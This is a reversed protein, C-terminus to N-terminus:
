VVKDFPIGAQCEGIYLNDWCTSNQDKGFTIKCSHRNDSWHSHTAGYRNSKRALKRSESVEKTLAKKAKSLTSYITGYNIILGIAPSYSGVYYRLM